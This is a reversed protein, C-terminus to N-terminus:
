RLVGEPGNPYVLNGFQDTAWEYHFEHAFPSTWGGCAPCDDGSFSQCDRSKDKWEHGCEEDDECRFFRYGPGFTRKALDKESM